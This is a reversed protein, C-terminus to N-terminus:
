NLPKLFGCPYASNLNPSNAMQLNTFYLNSHFVSLHFMIIHLRLRCLIYWQNQICFTSCVKHNAGTYWFAEFMWDWFERRWSCDCASQPWTHTRLKKGDNEVIRCCFWQNFVKYSFYRQPNRGGLRLSDSSWYPYHAFMPAFYGVLLFNWQFKFKM